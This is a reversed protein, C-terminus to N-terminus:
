IADDIAKTATLPTNPTATNDGTTSSLATTRKTPKPKRITSPSSLTSIM